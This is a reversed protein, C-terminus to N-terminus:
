IYKSYPLSKIYKEMFEFDPIEKNNEIKYPLYITGTKMRKQARKRGFSYRPLEMNLITIFFMGLFKNLKFNKPELIEVHDSGIFNNEQYFCKGDTASDFTIVNGKETFINSTGSFGNNKNSTTIYFYDGQTIQHQTFSKKSGRVKFLDLINFEKWNKIDLNEM